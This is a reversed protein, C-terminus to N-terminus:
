RVTNLAASQSLDPGTPLLALLASPMPKPDVKKYGFAALTESTLGFKWGQDTVLYVTGGKAGDTTQARVLAGYGGPLGVHDATGVEDTKGTPASKTSDRLLKPVSSHATVTTGKKGHEACVATKGADLGSVVKPRRSPFGDPEVVTDTRNDGVASTSIATQATGILEAALEGIAALGDDLLVYHRDNNTFVTGIEYKEGDLSRGEEGEDPIKIKLDPGTDLANLLVPDVEVVQEPGAGLAPLSKQSPVLYKMGAVVLYTDKNHSLLLGRTKDLEEGDAPEDGILVHSEFETPDNPNPASCTQWPSAVFLEPEPLTDPADPIGLVAGRPTDALSDQLVTHVTRDGSSTILLASAYNLVPHLKGEWYVFRAGTEEEVIVAGDAQWSKAGGPWIMGVVGFGAFVLSAIAIGVVASLAMRRMPLDLTEPEGNLMASIVRRVIFRHAAVQERRTRM